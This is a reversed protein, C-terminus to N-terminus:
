TCRTTCAACGRASSRGSVRTSREFPEDLLLVKPEVALARALAMRQRQGGSLQAPYRKAFGTLQVPQLLEAVTGRDGGEAAPPDELRIRRQEFRDHAQLRYHQFVFGVGRKQPVLSTADEGSIM